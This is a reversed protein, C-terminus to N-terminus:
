RPLLNAVMRGNPNEGNAMKLGGVVGDKTIIRMEDVTRGRLKVYLTQGGIANASGPMINATSVGGSHAMRIASETPNIADIARLIPQFPDSGENGDGGSPGFM